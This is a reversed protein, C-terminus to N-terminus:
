GVHLHQLGSFGQRRECASTSRSRVICRRWDACNADSLCTDGTDAGEACRVSKPDFTANCRKVDGIVGDTAGDLGDCAARAANFLVAREDRNLWAGPAAWARNVNLGGLLQTMQERAPYLSVIGNWDDPWRGAVMLAERGGTSGGLFYGKTPAQGYASQIVAHAVDRTKKLANGIFNWYAEENTLFLGAETTPMQHGSDSGFVAYGRALASPARAGANYSSGTVPPITGNFGGGGVM